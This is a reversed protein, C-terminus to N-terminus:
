DSGKEEVLVHEMVVVEEKGTDRELWKQRDRILVPNMVRCLEVVLALILFVLSLVLPFRLQHTADQLPGSAM